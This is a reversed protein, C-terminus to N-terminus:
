AGAAMFRSNGAQCAVRVSGARHRVSAQSLKGERLAGRAGVAQLSSTAFMSAAPPSAQWITHAARHQTLDNPFLHNACPSSRTWAQEDAQKARAPGGRQASQLRTSFFISKVMRGLGLRLGRETTIQAPAFCALSVSSIHRQVEANRRRGESRM